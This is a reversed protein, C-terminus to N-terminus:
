DLPPLTLVQGPYLLDPNDPDVLLSMNAEIVDRWYPAIEIDSVDRGSSTALARESISWLHDGPEVTWSHGATPTAPPLPEPPPPSQSDPPSPTATTPPATTSTSSSTAASPSTTTASSLETTTPTVLVMVPPRSPTTAGAPSPAALAVALTGQLIRRATASTMHEAVSRVLGMGRFSGVLQAAAVFALYGCWGVVTLRLVAVVHAASDGHSLWPWWSSPESLSPGALAGRDVSTMVMVLALLFALWALLRLRLRNM